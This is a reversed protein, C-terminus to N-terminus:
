SSRDIISLLDNEVKQWDSSLDITAVILRHPPMDYSEFFDRQDVAAYLIIGNASSDKKHSRHKVNKAAQRALQTVYAHIQYLNKEHHKGRKNLPGEAYFKTDLVIKRFAGELVIDTQMKPIYNAGAITKSILDWRIDQRGLCTMGVDKSRARYFNRVFEEFLIEMRPKLYDYFKADFEKISSISENVIGCDFLLLAINLLTRYAGSNRDLHVLRWSSKTVRIDSVDSLRLLVCRGKSRIEESIDNLKFTSLIVSKLIQNEINDINYEEFDCVLGAKGHVKIKTTDPFHVRGKMGLLEDRVNAYSKRLGRKLQTNLGHFLGLILIEVFTGDEDKSVAREGSFSILGLAYALLHYMNAVPIKRSDEM